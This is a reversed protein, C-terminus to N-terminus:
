VGEMEIDVDELDEDDGLAMSAEMAKRVRARLEPNTYCGIIASNMKGIHHVLLYAINMVATM